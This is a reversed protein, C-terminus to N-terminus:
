KQEYNNEKNPDSYFEKVRQQLLKMNDIIYGLQEYKTTSSFVDSIFQITPMGYAHMLKDMDVILEFLDMGALRFADLTIPKVDSAKPVYKLTKKMTEGKM